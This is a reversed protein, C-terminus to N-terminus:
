YQRSRDVTRSPWRDQELEQLCEVFGDVAGGITTPGSLHPSVMVRRDAWLPSGDPLPEVAFVDLAAGSLGGADLARSIAPEDIVAGRGANILYAGNTAMLDDFGILGDTERTLPLAVILWTAARVAARLDDIRAVQDFVASDGRGTRSVGSVRVGMARFASGIHSGVDGTGIIVAHTGRMFSIDISTWERRAQMAEVDRLRQTHALARALAWEAIMPGFSESTRTLLIDAPLEVPYLWSDVGAGTCHVWHVNGLTGIPPRRFGVYTDAWELDASTLQTHLNGRFELHPLRARLAEIMERHSGAGVIVRKALFSRPSQSLTPVDRLIDRM